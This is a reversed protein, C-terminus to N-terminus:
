MLRGQGVKTMDAGTEPGGQGRGPFGRHRFVWVTLGQLTCGGAHGSVWGAGGSGPRHGGLTRGGTSGVPASDLDSVVACAQKTTGGPSPRALFIGARDPDRRAAMTGAVKRGGEARGGGKQPRGCGARSGLGGKPGMYPWVRASRGRPRGRGEVGRDPGPPVRGPVGRVCGSRRAADGRTSYISCGPDRKQMNCPYTQLFHLAMACPTYSAGGPRSVLPGPRAPAACGASQRHQGGMGRTGATCM